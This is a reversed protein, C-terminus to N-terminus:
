EALGEFRDMLGESDAFMEPRSQVFELQSIYTSKYKASFEKDKMNAHDYNIFKASFEGLESDKEPEVTPIRPDNTTVEPIEETIPPEPIDEKLGTLFEKAMDNIAIKYNGKAYAPNVYTIKGDQAVTALEQNDEDRTILGDANISINLKSM